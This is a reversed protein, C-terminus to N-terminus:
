KKYKYKYQDVVGGTLDDTELEGVNGSTSTIRAIQKM